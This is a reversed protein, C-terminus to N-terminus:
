EKTLTQKMRILRQNDNTKSLTQITCQTIYLHIYKIKRLNDAFSRRLCLLDIISTYLDLYMKTIPALKHLYNSSRDNM